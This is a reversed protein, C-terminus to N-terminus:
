LLSESIKELFELSFNGPKSHQEEWIKEKLIRFNGAEAVTRAGRDILEAFRIIAAEPPLMASPTQSPFGQEDDREHICVLVAKIEESIPLNKLLCRNLSLLPHKRYEVQESEDLAGEGFAFSKEVVFDQVDFLGVDCFLGALFTVSPRGLGSKKSIYAAYFAVWPARWKAFFDNELTDKITEWLDDGAAVLSEFQAAFQGLRSYLQHATAEPMNKYDFLLYENLEVWVQCVALFLARVRKRLSAGQTDYFANIYELYILAERAQIYLARKKLMKQHKVDGLVSGRFAVGLYRQNLQMRVFVSFGLTTMSFLDAPAIDFFQSRCKLLCIYELKSTKFFDYPSLPIVRESQTGAFSEMLAAEHMATVITALPFRELLQGVRLSFAGVHEAEEQSVVLIPAREVDIDRGRLDNVDNLHRFVFSNQLAKQQVRVVVDDRQSVLLVELRLRFSPNTQSNNM